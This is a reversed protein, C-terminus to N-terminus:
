AAGRRRAGNRRRARSRSGDGRSTRPESSWSLAIAVCDGPRRLLLETGRRWVWLDSIIMGKPTLVAGWSISNSGAREIDNTFIGQVCAVAGPGDIRLVVDPRAIVHPRGRWTTLAEQTTELRLM